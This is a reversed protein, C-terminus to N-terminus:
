NYFGKDVNSLFIELSQSYKCCDSNFEAAGIMDSTQILQRIENVKMSLFLHEASM